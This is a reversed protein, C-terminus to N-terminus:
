AGSSAAAAADAAAKGGIERDFLFLGMGNDGILKLQDVAELATAEEEIQETIFWQLFIAAANDNEKTSFTSLDNIAKSILCEHEYAAQFVDLYSDWDTQPRDIAELTNKGGREHIFDYFKRAHLTEEDSRAKFWAAMGRMGKNEMYASMSLYLYSSYMELNCQKNFAQEVSPSIM